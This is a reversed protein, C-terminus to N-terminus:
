LQCSKKEGGEVLEARDDDSLASLVGYAWARSIGLQEAIEAPKLGGAILSIVEERRQSYLTNKRPKRPRGSM